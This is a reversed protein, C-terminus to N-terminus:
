FKIWLLNPIVGQTGSTQNNPATPDLWFCRGNDFTNLMVRNVLSEKGESTVSPHTLDIPCSKVSDFLTTTKEIEYDRTITGDKEPPYM